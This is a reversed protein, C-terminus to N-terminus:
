REKIMMLIGQVLLGKAVQPGLGKFLAQYGENQIYFKLVKSFGTFPKGDKNPAAKSQLAAKSVIFPQTAVTALCKSL